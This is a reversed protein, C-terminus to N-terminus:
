VCPPGVFFTFFDSPFISNFRDPTNEFVVQLADVSEKESKRAKESEGGGGILFAFVLFLLFGKGWWVPLANSSPM